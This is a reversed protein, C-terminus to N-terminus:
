KYILDKTSTVFPVLSIKRKQTDVTDIMLSLSKGITYETDAETKNQPIIGELGNELRVFVGQSSVKEVTGKVIDDSHMDKTLDVFPDKSLQKISLNVRGSNEEVSTVKAEVKDGIKYISSLDDVKEWSIESIHVLGEVGDSLSVFIGFPMMAAVEGSVKDGVKLKNLKLKTEESIKTKQTLILRNQSPDVEIVSVDIDQGVLDELNAAQSLSVQSSPLFGRTGDVEVILGGKNLEIAKGKLVQKGGALSQFKDWRGSGSNRGKPMVRESTLVAQGSENETQLVFGKVSDGVKLNKFQEPSLEKKLIIGEAKAGLDLVIEKDQISVVTGTVEQNRTLNLPKSQQKALLDAM